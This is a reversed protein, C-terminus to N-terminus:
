HRLVVSWFITTIHIDIQLLFNNESRSPFGWSKAYTVTGIVAFDMVGLSKLRHFKDLSYFFFCFNWFEVSNCITDSSRYDYALLIAQQSHFAVQQSAQARQTSECFCYFWAVIVPTYFCHNNTQRAVARDWWTVLLRSKGGFSILRETKYNSSTVMLFRCHDILQTYPRM